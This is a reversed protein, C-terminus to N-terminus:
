PLYAANKASLTTLTSVERPLRRYTLAALSAFQSESKSVNGLCGQCQLGSLGFGAVKLPSLERSMLSLEVKKALVIQHSKAEEEMQEIWELARQLDLM